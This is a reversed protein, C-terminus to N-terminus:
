LEMTVFREVISQEFDNEMRDLIKVFLEGPNSAALYGKIATTLQFFNGYMRVQLFVPFPSLLSSKGM